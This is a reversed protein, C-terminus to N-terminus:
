HFPRIFSAPPPFSPRTRMGVGNGSSVAAGGDTRWQAPRWADLLICSRGQMWYVRLICLPLKPFPLLPPWTLALSARLLCVACACRCLLMRGTTAGFGLDRFWPQPMPCLATSQLRHGTDPLGPLQHHTISLSRHSTGQSFVPARSILIGPGGPVGLSRNSYPCSFVLAHM